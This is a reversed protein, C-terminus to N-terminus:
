WGKQQDHERWDKVMCGTWGNAGSASCSGRTLDPAAGDADILRHRERSVSDVPGSPDFGRDIRPMRYRQQGGPRRACVVIEGAAQRAKCPDMAREIAQDISPATAAMLLLAAIM